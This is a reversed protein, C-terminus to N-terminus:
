ECSWDTMRTNERQSSFPRKADALARTPGTQRTRGTSPAPDPFISLFRPISLVPVFRHYPPTTSLPPPPHKMFPRRDISLAWFPVPHHRPSIGRSTFIHPTSHLLRFCIQYKNRRGTVATLMVVMVVMVMVVMVVASRVLVALTSGQGTENKRGTRETRGSRYM